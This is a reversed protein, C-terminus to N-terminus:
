DEEEDRIWELINEIVCNLFSSIRIIDDLVIKKFLDKQNELYYYYDTENFQKYTYKLVRRYKEVTNEERLIKSKRLQKLTNKARTASDKTKLIRMENENVQIYELVKEINHLHDEILIDNYRDYLRKHFEILHQSEYGPYTMIPYFNEQKDKLKFYEICQKDTTSGPDYDFISFVATLEDLDYIKEFSENDEIHENFTKLNQSIAKKIYIVIIDEDIKLSIIDKTKNKIIKFKLEPEFLNLIEEIYKAIFNIEIKGETLILFSPKIM